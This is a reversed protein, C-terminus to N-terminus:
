KSSMIVTYLYRSILFMELRKKSYVKPRNQMNKKAVVIDQEIDSYQEKYEQWFKKRDQKDELYTCCSDFSYMAHTIYLGYHLNDIIWENKVNHEVAFNYIRSIAQPAQFRRMDYTHAASGERKLYTYLVNDITVVNEACIVAKYYFEVDEAIACGETFKISNDDLIKKRVIFSGIRIRNTAELLTKIYELGSYEKKTYKDQSVVCKDTDKTQYRSVVMDTANSTIASLMASIYNAEVLDDGDAFAVYEGQAIEIGTNRAVSVGADSQYVYKFQKQLKHTEIYANIVKASEDTSGDDVIILEAQDLENAKWSDLTQEIYKELNYVPIIISLRM